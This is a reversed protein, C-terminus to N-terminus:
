LSIYKDQGKVAIWEMGGKRIFESPELLYMVWASKQKRFAEFASQQFVLALLGGVTIPLRCKRGM